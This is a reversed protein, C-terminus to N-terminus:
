YWDPIINKDCNFFMDKIYTTKAINWNSLDCNLKECGCFMYSADTINEVNWNELGKGKFKYCNSFMYCMNTMNSVDWKSLDCNFTKCKYFMHDAKTVNSM